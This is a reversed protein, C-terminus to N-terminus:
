SNSNTKIKLSKAYRKNKSSSSRCILFYMYKWPCWFFTYWKIFTNQGYKVTKARNLMLKLHVKKKYNYVTNQKTQKIDFEM